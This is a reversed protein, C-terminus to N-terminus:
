KRARTLKHSQELEDLIREADMKQEFSSNSDKLVKIAADFKEKQQKTLEIEAFADEFRKANEQLELMVDLQDAALSDTASLPENIKEEDTRSDRVEPRTDTPLSDIKGQGYKRLYESVRTNRTEHELHLTTDLKDCQPKFNQRNRM